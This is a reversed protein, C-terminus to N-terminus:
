YFMCFYLSFLSHVFPVGSQITTACLDFDADEVADRVFHIRQTIRRPKRNIPANRTRIRLVGISLSNPTNERGRHFWKWNGHEASFLKTVKTLRRSGVNRGVNGAWNACITRFQLTPSWWNMHWGRSFTRCIRTVPYYFPRSPIYIEQSLRKIQRPCNPALDSRRWFFNWSNCVALHSLYNDAGFHFLGM